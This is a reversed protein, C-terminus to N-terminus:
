SGKDAYIQRDLYEFPLPTEDMNCISDLMYRGVVQLEDRFGGVSLVLSNRQNFQM